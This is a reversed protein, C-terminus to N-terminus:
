FRASAYFQKVHETERYGLGGAADVDVGEAKAEGGGAMTAAAAAGLGLGGVRLADRRNVGKAEKEGM